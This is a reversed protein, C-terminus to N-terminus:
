SIVTPPHYKWGSWRPEVMGAGYVRTNIWIRGPIPQLELIQVLARYEDLVFVTRLGAWGSDKYFDDHGDYSMVPYNTYRPPDMSMYESPIAFYAAANTAATREDLDVNLFDYNFSTGDTNNSYPINFAQAPIGGLLFVGDKPLEISNQDTEEPTTGIGLHTLGGLHNLVLDRQMGKLTYERTVQGSIRDQIIVTLVYSQKPQPLTGTDGASVPPLTDATGSTITHREVAPANKLGVTLETITNNTLNTYIQATVRIKYHDGGDTKVGQYDCRYTNAPDISVSPLVYPVVGAVSETGTNSLGRADTVTVTFTTDKALASFTTGEYTDTSGSVPTMTVTRGGPYSLTVTSVPADTPRTIVATLKCKSFGAIYTSAYDNPFGDPQQILKTISSVTPRMSEKAAARDEVYRLGKTIPSPNGGTVTITIPIIFSDTIAATNFWDIVDNPVEIPVDFRGSSSTGSYLEENNGPYDTNGATIRCTLAVNNGYNIPIHMGTNDATVTGFSIPPSETYTEAISSGDHNLYVQGNYYNVVILIYLTDYSAWNEKWPIKWRIGSYDEPKTDNIHKLAGSPASTTGAPDTSYLYLDYPCQQGTVGALALNLTIESITVNSAKYPSFKYSIAYYYQGLYDTGSATVYESDWTNIYRARKQFSLTTTAM